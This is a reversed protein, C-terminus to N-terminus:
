GGGPGRETSEVYLPLDLWGALVLALSPAVTVERVTGSVSVALRADLGDESRLTLLVGLPQVDLGSLVADLVTAALTLEAPM